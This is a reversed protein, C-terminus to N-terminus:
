NKELSFECHQKKALKEINELISNVKTKIEKFDKGQVSMSYKGAALYTINCNIDVCSDKIISKIIMMGNSAKSSLRFIQRTEKPKEKKSDLIKQIKEAQEKKLCKNLIAPDKRASELFDSLSQTKLVEELLNECEKEGLVTKLIAKNSRDRSLKQLFEKKENIGVRRLSLVAHDRLSLVKCVIRKGPVVYDRLNRIRGPAIESLTITGELQRDDEEIKVFVTTGIIKDVVCLVLQGEQLQEEMSILILAPNYINNYLHFSILFKLWEQKLKQKAM